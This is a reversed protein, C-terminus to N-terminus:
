ATVNKVQTINETSNGPVTDNKLPFFNFMAMGVVIAVTIFSFCVVLGLLYRAWCRTMDQDLDLVDQAFRRQALHRPRQRPIRIAIRQPQQLNPEGGAGNDAM